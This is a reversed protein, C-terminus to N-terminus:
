NSAEPLTVSWLPAGGSTSASLEDLILQPDWVTLSRERSAPDAVLVGGSLTIGRLLIFHGRRTFHGPGMLAVLLKDSLLASLLEDVTRGSFSEAELGFAHTTGEVITHYSGSKRAWFGNSAAWKAVAAPDVVEGTLSSLVMSMATPGCGYGGIHDRGYPQGAWAEDTQNFYVINVLGGTLIERGDEMVLDTLSPDTVPADMVLVPDGTLQNDPSEPAPTDAPEGPEETPELRQRLSALEQQLSALEQRLNEGVAQALWVAQSSVTQVGARVPATLRQYLEPAFFRCAALEAGGICLVALLLILLINRKKHSGPKM